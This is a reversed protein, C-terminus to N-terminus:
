GEGNDSASDDETNSDPEPSETETSEDESEKTDDKTKTQPESESSENNSNDKETDIENLRKEIEDIRDLLESLDDKSVDDDTENSDQPESNNILRDVKKRLKKNEDKLSDIEDQYDKQPSSKVVTKPEKKAPPSQKEHNQNKEKLKSDKKNDKLEKDKSDDSSTTEVPTPEQSNQKEEAKDVAEDIIEQKDTPSINQVEKSSAFVPHLNPTNTLSAMAYSTILTITVISVFLLLIKMHKRKRFYMRIRHVLNSYWSANDYDFNDDTLNDDALEEGTEDDNSSKIFPKAIKKTGHATVTFLVRYVESVVAAIVSFLAAFLIGNVITTLKLSIMAMSVATFATVSINIFTLDTGEKLDKKLKNEKKSKVTEETNVEANEDSTRNELTEMETM